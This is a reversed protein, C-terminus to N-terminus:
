RISVAPSIWRHPLPEPAEELPDVRGGWAAIEYEVNELRQDLELPDTLSPHNGEVGQGGNV